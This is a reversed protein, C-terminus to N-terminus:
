AVETDLARDGAVAQHMTSWPTLAQTDVDLAVLVRRTAAIGRGRVAVTVDRERLRGEGAGLGSWRSREVALHVHAGAWGRAALVVSGRERARAAIRRRDADSVALGEGVIVVDMGDVVAGMVAPAQTGPHPILALRSLDIGRRAAALVGVHPMGVIVTWAGERSAESALALLLSTSNEVAIVHGRRLGRPLLQTLAPALPLEPSDWAERTTGVRGEVAALAARAAELRAQRTEM